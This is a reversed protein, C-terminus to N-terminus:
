TLPAFRSSLADTVQKVDPELFASVYVDDALGDLQVRHHPRDLFEQLGNLM